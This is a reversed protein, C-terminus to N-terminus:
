EKLGKQAELVKARLTKIFFFGMVAVFAAFVFWMEVPLQGFFIVYVYPVWWAAISIALGTKLEKKDIKKRKIKQDEIKLASRGIRYYGYYLPLASGFFLCCFLWPNVHYTSESKAAFDVLYEIISNIIEVM